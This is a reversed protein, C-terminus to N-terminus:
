RAGRRTSITLTSVQCPIALMAASRGAPLALEAIDSPM